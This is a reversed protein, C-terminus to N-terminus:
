PETGAVPLRNEGAPDCVLRAAGSRHGSIGVDRDHGGEEVVRLRHALQDGALEAAEGTAVLRCLSV